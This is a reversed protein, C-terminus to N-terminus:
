PLVNGFIEFFYMLSILVHVFFTLIVGFKFNALQDHDLVM